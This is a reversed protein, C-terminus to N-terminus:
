APHSQTFVTKIVSACSASGNLRVWTEPFVSLMSWTGNETRYVEHSPLQQRLGALGGREVPSVLRCRDGHCGLLALGLGLGGTPRGRTTGDKSPWPCTGRQRLSKLSTDQKCPIRDAASPCAATRPPPCCLPPGAGALPPAGHDCVPGCPRSRCRQAPPEDGGEQTAAPCLTSHRPAPLPDGRRRTCPHPLSLPAPVRPCLCTRYPTACVHVACAHVPCAPAAEARGGPQPLARGSGDSSATCM